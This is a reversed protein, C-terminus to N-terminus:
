VRTITINGDAEKKVSFTGGTSLLGLIKQHEEAIATLQKLKGLYFDPHVMSLPSAPQRLKSFARGSELLSKRVMLLLNQRLWWLISPDKWIHARLIDLTDFRREAFLSHWYDPWQENVHHHGGQHPIAASFLVVDAHKVLSAVLGRASKEGLHEAVELCIALDFRRGLDFPKELDLVQVLKESIRLQSKNLWEGDVGQVDEVGLEQAAALWTGLGCGVDLASAPRYIEFLMGLIVRAAHRNNAEDPELQREHLDRYIAEREDPKDAM